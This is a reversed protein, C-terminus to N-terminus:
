LWYALLACVIAIASTRSRYNASNGALTMTSGNAHKVMMGKTIPQITQEPIPIVKRSTVFSHYRLVTTNSSEYSLTNRKKQNLQTYERSPSSSPYSENLAKSGDYSLSPEHNIKQYEPATTTTVSIHTNSYTEPSTTTPISTVVQLDAIDFPTNSGINQRLRDQVPNLYQPTKTAFKRFKFETWYPDTVTVTVTVPVDKYLIAQFSPYIARVGRHNERVDVDSLSYNGNKVKKFVSKLGRRDLDPYKATTNNYESDEIIGYGSPRAGRVPIDQGNQMIVSNNGKKIHKQNLNKHGNTTNKSHHHHKVARKDIRLDNDLTDLIDDDNLFGFPGYTQNYLTSNLKAALELNEEPGCLAQCYEDIIALKGLNCNMDDPDCLKLEFEAFEQCQLLRDSGSCVRTIIDLSDSFPGSFASTFSVLLSVTKFIRM